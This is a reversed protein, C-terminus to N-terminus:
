CGAAPQNDNSAQFFNNMVKLNNEGFYRERAFQWQLPEPNLISIKELAEFGKQKDNNSWMVGLATTNIFEALTSDAPGHGFIPRGAQLYSTLKTPLSTTAFTHLVNSQPYMCYVFNCAALRPIVENEPLTDYFLLTDKLDEPFATTNLHCGWMKLLVKKNQKAFFEKLLHLFDILDSKDYISGIHGLIVESKDHNGSGPIITDAELYRHCVVGERGSLQRYYNRMGESIVDFSNVAKLTTVTLKNALGAMFRYRISRACLAGAWDDHVTLHVPRNNQKKTLELAIRLGENHSVIWYSDCAIALLQKVISDIADVKKGALMKASLLIDKIVPGGMVAKGLYGPEYGSVPQNGIYCWNVAIQPMHATLSRLIAGGGGVNPAHATFLCVTPKEM